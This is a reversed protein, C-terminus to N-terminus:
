KTGTVVRDHRAYDKLIRISGFGQRALIGAVAEGQQEGIEVALLGGPVLAAQWREAIGRYFQLGDEGAALAMEPEHRIEQQLQTMEEATLYPPNSVIVDFKGCDQLIEGGLVDGQHFVVELAHYAANRRAYTLAAESLDIAHVEAGPLHRQLALAICGSGTCLDLIRPNERGRCWGLVTEVLTETDPRPILVGPGVFLRMGFFEWEGLIYQLPEGFARRQAMNRLPNEDETPIGTVIAKEYACGAVQEIMCRVDFAADPVHQAELYATLEAHLAAADMM